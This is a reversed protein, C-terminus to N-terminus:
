SVNVDVRDFGVALTIAGVGVEVPLMKGEAVGVAGTTTVWNGGVTVSVGVGVPVRRGVRVPVGTGVRVCM